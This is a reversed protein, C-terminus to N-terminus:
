KIVLVGWRGVRLTQNKRSRTIIKKKELFIKENSPTHKKILEHLENIDSAYNIKGSPSILSYKYSERKELGSNLSSILWLVTNKSYVLDSKNKLDMQLYDKDLQIFNDACLLAPHFGKQSTVAKFYEEFCWFLPDITVGSGGYRHYSECDQNYVRFFMEDYRQKIKDINPCTLDVEGWSTGMQGDCNYPNPINGRRISTYNAYTRYGDILFRVQYYVVNRKQFGYDEVLITGSTTKFYKGIIDDKITQTSVIFLDEITIM